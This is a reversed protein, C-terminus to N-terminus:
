GKESWFLLFSFFFKRRGIPTYVSLGTNPPYPFQPPLSPSRSTSLYPPTAAGLFSHTPEGRSGTGIDDVEPSTRDGDMGMNMVTGYSDNSLDTVFYFSILMDSIFFNKLLM